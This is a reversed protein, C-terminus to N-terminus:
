EHFYASQIYDPNDVPGSHEDGKKIKDVVDMGEIVQGFLTYQGDLFRTDALCIFFQSNASNPDNSRAMSVAGRKHPLNSFEAPINPLDSGGTGVMSANFSTHHGYKVDGVQAVFGDIVRHFTIGDYAHQEVLKRIQEVHKPAADPNLAIKVDGINLALVLTLQSTM